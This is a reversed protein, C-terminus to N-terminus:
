AEETKWAARPFADVGTPPARRPLCAASLGGTPEQGAAGRANCIRNSLLHLGASRRIGDCGLFDMPSVRM